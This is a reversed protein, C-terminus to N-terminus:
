KEEVISCNEERLVNKQDPSQTYIEDSVPLTFKSQDGFGLQTETGREAGM